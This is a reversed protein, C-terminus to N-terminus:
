NPTHYKELKDIREHAHKVSEDLRAYKDHLKQLDTRFERIDKKMDDIGAKIYGIETFLIGDQRGEASDDTKKNRSYTIFGFILGGVGTFIGVIGFVLYAM